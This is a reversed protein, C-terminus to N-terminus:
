LKMSSLIEQFKRDSHLASFMFDNKLCVMQIDRDRQAQQLSAIAGQKDNLALQAAAVHFAPFQRGATQKLGDLLQNASKTEGLNAQVYAILATTFPADGSLRKARSFADGAVNWNGRASENMGLLVHGMMFSPDIEIARRIYPLANDFDRAYYHAYGVENSFVKSLPDTDYAKLALDIAERHRGQASRLISSLQIGRGHSPNSDCSSACEREARAWDWTFNLYVNALCNHRSLSRQNLRILNDTASMVERVSEAHPLINNYSFSVYCDALGAYAEACAPDMQIASRFYQSAKHLAAHNRQEWFYRGMICAYDAAGDQTAINRPQSSLSNLVDRPISAAIRSAIEAQADLANNLTVDIRESWLNALSGACILHVFVRVRNGLIRVTGSLLAAAGVGHISRKLVEPYRISSTVAADLPFSVTGINLRCFEYILEERIGQSIQSIPAKSQMSGSQLDVCDFAAIAIKITNQVPASALPAKTPESGHHSVLETTRAGGGRRSSDRWWNELEHRLAYVSGRKRHHHRWVPLAESKEWLQVTRVDRDFFSAIEKWSDLQNSENRLSRDPSRRIKLSLDGQM